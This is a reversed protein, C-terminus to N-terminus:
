ESRHRYYSQSLLNTRNGEILSVVEMTEKDSTDGIFVESNDNLVLIVNTRSVEGFLLVPSLVVRNIDELAVLIPLESQNLPHIEISDYM